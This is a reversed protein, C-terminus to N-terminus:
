AQRSKRYAGPPVGVHQRFQRAFFFVNDYGLQEAVHRLSLETEGVLARAAAMRAQLVYAHLPMGTAERFRRRLTSVGMGVEAAIRACDPAFVENRSLRELVAELWPERATPTKQARDEALELLLQELLNVARLRGWRDTRRALAIMEDFFPAYDKGAPAPQPERPWLGQAEWRQVLPGRFGVHRHFWTAHGPAPHFRLRPGPFAPWFWASGQLTYGRDDYFLEVGGETMFQITHYGDLRKDLRIDCRPERTTALFILDDDRM